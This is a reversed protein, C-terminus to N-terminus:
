KRDGIKKAPSGGWIEYAPISHNVVSNAAIVVGDGITIGMLITVNSAIWIDNGLKIPGTVNPQENIKSTRDIGHNSDVIYVFPAILCDDGIEISNSSFIFSHYGVTTRKGIRITAKSNCVCIRAGEKIVVDDEIAINGPYRLFRVDRDIYVNKGIRNLRFSEWIARFRTIFNHKLHQRLQSM